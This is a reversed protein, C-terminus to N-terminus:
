DSKSDREGKFAALLREFEAATMKVSARILKEDDVVDIADLLKMVDPYQESLTLRGLAVMGRGADALTKADEPTAFVFEAQVDIGEALDAACSASEISLLSRLAPPINIGSPLSDLRSELLEGMNSSFSWLQNSLNLAEARELLPKNDLLSPGGDIKRDITEMVALKTGAVAIREDFLAFSFVDELQKLFEPEPAQPISGGTEPTPSHYVTVGRYEEVDGNEEFWKRVADTLHFRGRAVAISWAGPSEVGDDPRDAWSASMVRDLDQRPDFGIQATMRDLSQDLYQYYSENRESEAELLRYIPIIKLRMMDVSGVGSADSPLLAALERDLGAAQSKDESRCSHLTLVSVFVVALLCATSRNAFQGGGFWDRSFGKALM